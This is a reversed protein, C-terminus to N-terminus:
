RIGHIIDELEMLFEMDYGRAKLRQLMLHAAQTVGLSKCIEVVTVIEDRSMKDTPMLAVAVGLERVAARMYAPKNDCCGYEYLIAYNKANNLFEDYRYANININRMLRNEITQCIKEESYLYESPNKTEYDLASLAEAIVKKRLAMDAFFKSNEPCGKEALVEYIHASNLQEYPGEMEDDVVNKLLINEIVKCAPVVAIDKSYDNDKPETIEADADSDVTQVIESNIQDTVNQAEQVIEQTEVKESLGFVGRQYMGFVALGAILLCFIIWFWVRGRRVVKTKSDTIKNEKVM